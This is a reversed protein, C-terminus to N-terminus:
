AEVRERPSAKLVSVTMCPMEEATWAERSKPGNSKVMAVVFGGQGPGGPGTAENAGVMLTGM